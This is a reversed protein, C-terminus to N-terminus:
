RTGKLLPILEEVDGAGLVALVEPPYINDAIEAAISEWDGSVATAADGVARALDEAGVGETNTWAAFVPAVVVADAGRLERAFGELHEALRAARHPQFVVRLRYEPWRKRMADLVAAVEAPHHAYDEVLKFDADDLHLTMRRAVGPFGRVLREADSREIGLREAGEVALFANMRQYDGWETMDSFAAVAADPALALANSHGGLIEADDPFPYYLINRAKRAQDSFNALLAGRGGLNWAHDDDVGTLLLVDSALLANTGDSEDSEAIFAGGDGAGASQEWGSIKGGVVYGPNIGASIAIHALMASVTTKGHSGAVAAVVEYREATEALFEGRRVVRWGRRRAEEVEPNDEPVASSRVLLASDGDPINECSHGIGVDVGLGELTRTNANGAIDSGSVRAGREAALLALGVMGAGGCGVFHVREDPKM